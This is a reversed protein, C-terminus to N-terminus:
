VQTHKQGSALGMYLWFLTAVKSAEFVDIFTAIILFSILAGMMGILYQHSLPNLKRKLGILLDTILSIIISLFALFGLLGTEGLSRLYDNDTALSISSYGTGLLPNKALARMARPWEVDVRISTSRDQQIPRLSPTPSIDPSPTSPSTTSAAYVSPIVLQSRTTFLGKVQDQLYRFELVNLLNGFRGAISPTNALGIVGLLYLPIIWLPKKSLLFVSTVGLLVSFFAIRSGTKLQMWFLSLFLLIAILKHWRHKLTFYTATLICLTIALYTALDYHGAFTSALNVGPQLTLAFGKSYEENQTIIVPAQLYIQALGYLFVGLAVLPIIELIFKLHKSNQALILGGVFPLVYEIRRAWHLLGILPSVTHTVLIGSVVSLLGVAFYVLLARLTNSSLLLRKYKLGSFILLIGLLALLFDEARIAVYTGPVNFLPFKPYLPVFILIAAFLYKLLLEPAFSTLISLKKQVM